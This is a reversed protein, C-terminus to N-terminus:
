LVHRLLQTVGTPKSLGDPIKCCLLALRVTEGPIRFGRVLFGNVILLESDHLQHDTFSTNWLTSTEESVLQRRVSETASKQVNTRALTEAISGCRKLLMCSSVRWLQCVSYHQYLAPASPTSARTFGHSINLDTFLGSHSNVSPASYRCYTRRLLTLFVLSGFHM